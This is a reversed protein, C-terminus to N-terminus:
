KRKELFLFISMHLSMSKIGAAMNNYKSLPFWNWQMASRTRLDLGRPPLQVRAVVPNQRFWRVLDDPGAGVVFLTRATTSQEDEAVVFFSHGSRFNIINCLRRDSTM